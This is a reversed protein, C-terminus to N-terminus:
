VLPRARDTESTSHSEQQLMERILAGLQEVAMRIADTTLNSFCLRLHENAEPNVMFVDGPTFALGRQLAKQYLTGFAHHRPLTLWCSFGGAPVTWEVKAPMYTDLSQMLTDRRKRYVPRVRELHRSLGGNHLFGALARQLFTPMTLLTARQLTLIQEHVPRPAVVYGLRLGPMLMKSFSDIYVVLGSDDRSKMSAPAPEDYWLRGYVDDEVILLNHDRALTLLADRREPSVSLGTPNHFTPVTYYFRPRYRTVVRDLVDPDPGGDDFPVGVPHLGHAKLVNFFGMFTPQEVIVSDGPQGLTQTVVSLAQLAGQTVIIDEPVASIGRDRLIGAIEVRLQPDGQTPGYRMFGTMDDRLQAVQSYLEDAPFLSHDPDAGAMSRVGVVQNFQVIDRVIGDPTLQAGLQAAGNDTQVSQSVFTGRGVTAEVWGDAQMDSYANQVTLRTVGLDEALQRVTPLRAGAPLRGDSIQAKIQEAIQRYLPLAGDRDVDLTLPM